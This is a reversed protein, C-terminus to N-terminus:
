AEDDPIFEFIHYVLGDEMMVTDIFYTNSADFETGTPVAYFERKIKPEMRDLQVYLVIEGNQERASLVSAFQPLELVTFPALTYKYVVQM